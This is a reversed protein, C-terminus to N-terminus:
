RSTKHKSCDQCQGQVEIHWFSVTGIEEVPASLPLHRDINKCPIDIIRKCQVCIFHDHPSMNADYRARYGSGVRRVVGHAEFLRLNRYVTDLSLAPLHRKLQTFVTEADPHEDTNLLASFIERRQRTSKMGVKECVSAFARADMQPVTERTKM